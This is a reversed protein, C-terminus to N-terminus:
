DFFLIFNKEPAKDLQVNCTRPLFSTKGLGFLLKKPREKQATFVLSEVEPSEMEMQALICYLSVWRTKLILIGIGRFFLNYSVM